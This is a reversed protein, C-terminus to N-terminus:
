IGTLLTRGILYTINLLNGFVFRVGSITCVSITNANECLSDAMEVPTAKSPQYSHYVNNGKMLLIILNYKEPQLIFGSIVDQTM